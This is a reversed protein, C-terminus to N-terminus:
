HQPVTRGHNLAKRKAEKIRARTVDARLQNLTRENRIPQAEYRALLAQALELESRRVVPPPQAGGLEAWLKDQNRWSRRTRM